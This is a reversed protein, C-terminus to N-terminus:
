RHNVIPLAGVGHARPCLVGRRGIRRRAREGTRRRAPRLCVRPGCSAACCPVARSKGASAVAIAFRDPFLFFFIGELSKAAAVKVESKTKAAQESEPPLPEPDPDSAPVPEPLSPPDLLVVYPQQMPVSSKLQSVSSAACDHAWCPDGPVQLFDPEQPDPEFGSAPPPPPLPAIPSVHEKSTSQSDFM